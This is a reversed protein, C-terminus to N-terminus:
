DVKAAVTEPLVEKAIRKSLTYLHRLKDVFSMEIRAAALFEPESRGLREAKRALLDDTLRRIREKMALVSEAAQVDNDRVATVALGLSGEVTTFLQTLLDRTRDSPEYEGDLARDALGVLDTEVVDAASELNVVAAMLAQHDRSEKETLAEQRLKALYELIREELIDVEDDRQAIHVLEQRRREVVAQRLDVMMDRAIQGARGFELRVQELAVSPAKLASEDLFRPEIIVDPPPAPREPVMKEAMKAFVGTFGIFLLTNAVNFLTNANAIQRPVDAVA